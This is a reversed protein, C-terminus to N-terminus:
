VNAFELKKQQAAKEAAQAAQARRARLELVKKHRIHLPTPFPRNYVNEEENESESESLSSTMPKKRKTSAKVPSIKRPPIPKLPTFPNKMEANYTEKHPQKLRKQQAQKVDEKIFAIQRSSYHEDCLKQIQRIENRLEKEEKPRNSFGKVEKLLSIAYQLLSQTLMKGILIADKEGWNWRKIQYLIHFIEEFPKALLVSLQPNELEYKIEPTNLHEYMYELRDSFRDHRAQDLQNRYGWSRPIRTLEEDLRPICTTYM